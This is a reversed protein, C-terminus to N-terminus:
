VNKKVINDIELLNELLFKLDTLNLMNPGDSIAKEPNDHTEIFVSSVGVATAARALHPIFESQGGSKDGRGGPQQLSHTVDFVIPWGFKQMIPISKMDSVLNNYGFSVGRECLLINDSGCEVLKKIINKTEWPSMFQGKKVMIPKKTKSAAELLNTQRCLFAPIQIVDIVDSIEACQQNEHVDTIIPVNFLKKIETFIEKALDIGVGRKSLISTRNAKDFSSKYIFNIDVQNCIERIKAAMEIAHSKSEIACPGAILVLKSKNSLEINNIFVKNQKKM